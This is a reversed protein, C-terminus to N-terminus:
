RKNSSRTCDSILGRVRTSSSAPQPRVAGTSLFNMPLTSRSMPTSTTGKVSTGRSISCILLSRASSGSGSALTSRMMDRLTNSCRVSGSRTYASNARTSRGPPRTTKRVALM